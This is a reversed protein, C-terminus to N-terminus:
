KRTVVLLGARHQHHRMYLGTLQVADVKSTKLEADVHSM